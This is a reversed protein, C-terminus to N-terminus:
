LCLASYIAPLRNLLFGGAAISVCFIGDASLLFEPFEPFDKAPIERTDGVRDDEGLLELRVERSSPLEHRKDNPKRILRREKDVGLVLVSNGRSDRPLSTVSSLPTPDCCIRGSERPSSGANIPM